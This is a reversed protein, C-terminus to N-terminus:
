FTSLHISLGQSIILAMWHLNKCDQGPSVVNHGYSSLDFTGHFGDREVVVVFNGNLVVLVYVIAVDAGVITGSFSFRFSGAEYNSATEDDVVASIDVCKM